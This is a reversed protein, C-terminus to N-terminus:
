GSVHQSHTHEALGGVVRYEETGPAAELDIEAVWRVARADGLPDQLVAIEYAHNGQDFVRYLFYRGRYKQAAALENGRLDIRAGQASRGKVEIFRSILNTDKTESTLFRQRDEASSFSLIDVGPAKWGTVHSVLVPFRPPSAHGEFEIVKHECFVWDTVRRAGSLTRPGSLRQRMVRCEIGPSPLSPVHKLPTIVLPQDRGVEPPTPLRPEAPPPAVTRSPPPTPPTFATLPFEFEHHEDLEIAEFYLREIETLEPLEEEGILRRLIKARDKAKCGILRAFEDGREIRFVAAFVQGVTDALLDSRLPDPEGPDAQVYAVNAQDDLIWDWPRLVLLDCHGDFEVEGTISGCVVVRLRRFLESERASQRQTRRLLFVMPKIRDIEEEFREAGVVPQFSSIRRAIHSRDVAKVGFLGTVKQPGSRKPLAVVKLKRCLAASIDESDVHWLDGVPWYNEEHGCRAWMKGHEIFRRQAASGHVDAPDFHDLVARYVSRAWQGRRDREPLAILLKYLEDPELQSFSPIVGARDFANRLLAPALGYSQLQAGDPRLPAPLFGELGRAPEAVCNQPCVKAGGRRPLWPTTQLRWHVYSPIPGAYFRFYQAYPRRNGFQGHETSPAKWRVARDDQALWALIATPDAKALFEDLGDLTELNRFRGESLEYANAILHDEMQLPFPLSKIAYERFKWDPAPEFKERPLASVGLWRVFDVLREPPDNLGLTKPPALLKAPAFSGYLGQLIRGRDGFGEALYLTRADEFTGAQTLLLLKADEPFRPRREPPTGEPFLARITKLLGLRIVREESPHGKAWQNARRVLAGLLGDLSYRAVGIGALRNALEVQDKTELRIELAACLEPLLFRMEM